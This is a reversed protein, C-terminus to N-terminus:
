RSRRSSTSTTVELLWAEGLFILLVDGGAFSQFARLGSGDVILLNPILLDFVLLFGGFDHSLLQGSQDIWIKRGILLREM